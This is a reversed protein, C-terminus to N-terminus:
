RTGGGGADSPMSALVDAGVARSLDALALERDSLARFYSLEADLLARQADILELFDLRDSQYAIRASELTQQSQPVVTTRLLSARQTTATVRVYAEQVALRVRAEVRHRNAVAADIDANAEARRADLRGRAWPANPWTVSVSATWAGAERPMLMYGGGLTFDPKEDSTVVGLSAKAREIGTRAADLEPQNDLAAQQLAAASPLAVPDRPEDLVGIPADPSRDLLTNLRAAALGAAEEHMVLDEHLKSLEAVAKLVDQQPRRGAAYKVTTAEAFQRLVDVSTLHIEISRRAVVLDAYARMVETVVDRARIAIDAGALDSDAQALASRAQRKGAGPVEQQMTFMYMNVNLPNVTTVPWQWIQAELTPPMLFREAGPRLRASDFQRRLVVLEPNKQLAEDIALKLGLPPGNYVPRAAPDHLHQPSQAATLVPM